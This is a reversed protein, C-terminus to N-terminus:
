FPDTLYDNEKLFQKVRPYAYISVKWGQQTEEIIGMQDFLFCIEAIRSRSVPLLEDLLESSVGNHLLLSHLVFGEDDGITKPLEGKTVEKLPTVWVTSDENETTAPDEPQTRLSANWYALAVGSNGGSYSALYRFYSNRQKEDERATSEHSLLLSGDDSKCFKIGTRYLEMFLETLMDADFSKLTIVPLHKIRWVYNLFAWGWGDRAIIGQGFDVSCAKDLLRRIM